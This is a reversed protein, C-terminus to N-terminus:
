ATKVAPATVDILDLIVEKPLPLSGCRWKGEYITVETMQCIPVLRWGGGTPLPDWCRGGIQWGVVHARGDKMGLAYLCMERELGVYLCLILRRQLVAHRLSGYDAEM